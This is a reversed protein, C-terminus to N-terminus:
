HTENIEDKLVKLCNEAAEKEAEKKSKGFGIGYLKNNIFVGVKYIREHEKGRVELVDYFPLIKFKSQTIEQLVTKSDIITKDFFKKFLTNIIKNVSRLGSDLYIAAILSEFADCLISKKSRGGSIEEGKGLILYEDIKIELAFKSLFDRSILLAKNTALFGEREKKFKKFLKYSVVFNIIADGLFELREFNLTQDISTKSTHTLAKEILNKDKIKINYTKELFDVFNAIDKM